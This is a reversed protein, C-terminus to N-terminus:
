FLSQSALWLGRQRRSRCCTRVESRSSRSCANGCKQQSGCQPLVLHSLGLGTTDHPPFATNLFTWCSAKGSSNSSSLLNLPLLRTLCLLQRKLGSGIRFSPKNRTPPLNDRARKEHSAFCWFIRGFFFWTELRIVSWKWLSEPWEPLCCTNLMIRWFYKIILTFELTLLTRVLQWLQRLCSAGKQWYFIASSGSSRKSRSLGDNM